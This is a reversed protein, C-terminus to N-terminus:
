QPALWRFHLIIESSPARGKAATTDAVEVDVQYDGVIRRLRLRYQQQDGLHSSWKRQVIEYDGTLSVATLSAQDIRWGALAQDLLEEGADVVASPLWQQAWRWEKLCVHKAEDGLAQQPHYYRLFSGPQCSKVRTAMLRWEVPNDDDPSVFGYVGRIAALRDGKAPASASLEFGRAELNERLAFIRKNHSLDPVRWFEDETAAAVEVAADRHHAIPDSAWSLGYLAAFSALVTAVVLSRSAFASSESHSVARSM